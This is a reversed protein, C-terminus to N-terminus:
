LVRLGPYWQSGNRVMALADKKGRLVQNNPANVTFDDAWYKEIAPLDNALVAAAEARDIRRIEQELRDDNKATQALVLSAVLLSIAATILRRQFTGTTQLVGSSAFCCKPQNTCKTDASM